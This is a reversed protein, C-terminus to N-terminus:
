VVRELALTFVNERYHKLEQISAELDVMAGHKGNPFNTELWKDKDFKHNPCWRSVLEKITSVDVNRRHTYIELDPLHLRLFARDQGVSNGALPCGGTRKLIHAPPCFKQLFDLVQREADKLTVTSTRVRELLGNETHTKFNWDDMRNLRHETQHIAQGLLNKSGGPWRGLEQLDKDTVIVAIEIIDHWEPHLGTMELDMWILNGPDQAM